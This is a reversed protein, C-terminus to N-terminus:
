SILAAFLAIRLANSLCEFDPAQARTKTHAVLLATRSRARIASQHQGKRNALSTWIRKPRSSACVRLGSPGLLRWPSTSRLPPTLRRAAQCREPARITAARRRATPQIRLLRVGEGDRELGNEPNSVPGTMSVEALSCRELARPPSFSAQRGPRDLQARLVEGDEEERECKPRSQSRNSVKAGCLSEGASPKLTRWSIELWSITQVQQHEIDRQRGLVASPLLQRDRVPIQLIRVTLIIRSVQSNRFDHMEGSAAAM